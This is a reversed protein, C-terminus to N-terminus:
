QGYSKKIDNFAEESVTIKINEASIKKLKHLFMRCSYVYLEITEQGSECEITIEQKPNDLKAVLQQIVM